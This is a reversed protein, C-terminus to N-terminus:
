LFAQGGQLLRMGQDSIVLTAPLKVAVSGHLEWLSDLSHDTGADVAEVLSRVVGHDGCRYQPGLEGQPRQGCNGVELLVKARCNGIKARLAQKDLEAAAGLRGVAEAV